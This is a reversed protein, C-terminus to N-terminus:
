IELKKFIRSLKQIAWPALFSLWFGSGVSFIPNLYPYAAKAKLSAFLGVLVTITQLISIKWGEEWYKKVKDNLLLGIALGISVGFFYFAAERGIVVLLVPYLFLAAKWKKEIVPFLKWYILLLAGGVILGGLIDTFYHLGLYVRSFCLFLAFLLGLYWYIKKHCEIFIIGAILMATQAAGSPLGPAQSCLIGVAEDIQCPRPLGFYTKLAVNVVSSLMFIYILRIGVRRNILYWVITIVLISFGVTDVYSWGLFFRDMWYSRLVHQLQKIWTLETNHVDNIWM